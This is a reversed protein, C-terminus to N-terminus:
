IHHRSLKWRERKLESRLCVFLQPGIFFGVELRQTDLAELQERLLHVTIAQRREWQKALSAMQVAGTTSSQVLEPLRDRDAFARETM